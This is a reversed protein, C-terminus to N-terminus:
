IRLLAPQSQELAEGCVWLGLAISNATEIANKNRLRM